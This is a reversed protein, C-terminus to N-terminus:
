GIGPGCSADGPPPPPPPPSVIQAGLARASPKKHAVPLVTAAHAGAHAAALLAPHFGIGPRRVQSKFTLGPRAGTRARYTLPRPPM